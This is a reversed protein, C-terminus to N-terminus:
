DKMDNLLVKYADSNEIMLCSGDDEFLKGFLYKVIILGVRTDYLKKDRIVVVNDCNIGSDILYKIFEIRKPRNEYQIGCIQRWLNGVNLNAGNKLLFNFRQRKNTDILIGYCTKSIVTQDGDFIQNIDAGNKILITIDYFNAKKIFTGCDDVYHLDVGLDIIDQIMNCECNPFNCKNYIGSKQVCNLNEDFIHPFTIHCCKKRYTGRLYNSLLKENINKVYIKDSLKKFLEIGGVEFSRLLIEEYIENDNNNDNKCRECLTNDDYCENIICKECYDYPNIDLEVIIFRKLKEDFLKKDENM